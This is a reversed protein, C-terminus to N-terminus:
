QMVETWRCNDDLQQGVIPAILYGMSCACYLRSIIFTYQRYEISAYILCGEGERKRLTLTGDNYKNKKQYKYSDVISNRM